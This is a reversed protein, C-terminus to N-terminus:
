FGHSRHRRATQEREDENNERRQCHSAPSLHWYHRPQRVCKVIGTAWVQSSNDSIMEVLSKFVIGSLSCTQKAKMEMIAKDLYQTMM